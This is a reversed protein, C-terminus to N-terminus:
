EHKNELDTQKVVDYLATKKNRYAAWMKDGYAFHWWEAPYNVFGAKRMAVLLTKRNYKQSQNLEKSRTITKPTHEQYKTGMDIDVGNKDCLSLDVAGGTEIM